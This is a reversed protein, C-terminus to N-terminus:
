DNVTRATTLHEEVEEAMCHDNVISTACGQTFHKGLVRQPKRVVRVVGVWGQTNPLYRESKTRIVASDISAEQNTATITQHM